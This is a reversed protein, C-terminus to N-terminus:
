VTTYAKLKKHLELAVFGNSGLLYTTKIKEPDIKLFKEILENIEKEAICFIQVLQGNPLLTFNYLMENIIDLEEETLYIRYEFLAQYESTTLIIEITNTPTLTLIGTQHQLFLCHPIKM